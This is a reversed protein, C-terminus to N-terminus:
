FSALFFYLIYKKKLSYVKLSHWYHFSFCFDLNLVNNTLKSTEIAKIARLNKKTRDLTVAFVLVPPLSVSTSLLELRLIKLTCYRPVLGRHSRSIGKFSGQLSMQPINFEEWGEEESFDSHYNGDETM